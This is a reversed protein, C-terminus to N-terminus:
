AYTDAMLQRFWKDMEEFNDKSASDAEGAASVTGNRVVEM